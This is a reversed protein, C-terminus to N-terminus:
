PRLHNPACIAYGASTYFKAFSLDAQPYRLKLAYYVAVGDGERSFFFGTDILAREATAM